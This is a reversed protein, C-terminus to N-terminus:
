TFKLPFLDGQVAKRRSINRSLKCDILATDPFILLQITEQLDRQVNVFKAPQQFSFQFIFHFHM